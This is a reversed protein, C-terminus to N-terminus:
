EGRELYKEFRQSYTVLEKVTIKDSIVLSVALELSKQREISKRTRMDKADWMEPTMKDPKYGDTRIEDVPVAGLEKAAKVMPEENVIHKGTQEATAIYEREMYTGYGVKVEAGPQFVEFLSQRKKGIKIKGNVVLDGYQNKEATQVTIVGYREIKTESM